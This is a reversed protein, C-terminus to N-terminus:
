AAPPLDSLQTGSAGQKCGNPGDPGESPAQRGPTWTRIQDAAQERGRLVEGVVQGQWRLDHGPTGGRTKAAAFRARPVRSLTFECEERAASTSERWRTARPM